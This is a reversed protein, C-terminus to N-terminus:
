SLTTILKPSVVRYNYEGYWVNRGGLQDAGIRLGGAYVYVGAMALNEEPKNENIPKNEDKKILFFTGNGNKRLWDPFVECFEIVQNQSFWKQSWNGPLSCFIDMSTGRSMMEHVQISTTPTSIGSKNIGWKIFDPDVLQKFTEGADCILRRGDLSKLILDSDGSILRLVSATAKSAMKGKLFNDLEEESLNILKQLASNFLPKENQAREIAEILEPLTNNKTNM